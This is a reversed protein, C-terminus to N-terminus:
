TAVLEIMLVTTIPALNTLGHGGLLADDQASEAIGLVLVGTLGDAGMLDRRRARRRPM